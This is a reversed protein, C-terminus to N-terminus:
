PWHTKAFFCLAGRKISFAKVLLYDGSNWAFYGTSHFIADYKFVM